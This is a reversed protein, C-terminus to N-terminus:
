IVDEVSVFCLLVGESSLFSVKMFTVQSCPQLAIVPTSPPYSTSDSDIGSAFGRLGGLGNEVERM